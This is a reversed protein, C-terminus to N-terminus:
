LTFTTILSTRIVFTGNDLCITIAVCNGAIEIITSINNMLYIRSIDISDMHIIEIHFYGLISFYIGIWQIVLQKLCIEFYQFLIFLRFLLHELRSSSVLNIPYRVISLFQHALTVAISVLHLSNIGKHSIFGSFDHRDLRKTRCFVSDIFHIRCISKMNHFFENFYFNVAFRIIILRIHVLITISM